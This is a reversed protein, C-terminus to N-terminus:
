YQMLEVHLKALDTIEKSYSILLLGEVFKNNAITSPMKSQLYRQLMLTYRLQIKECSKHVTAEYSDPNFLVVMMMLLLMNIDLERNVEPWQKIKTTLELHKKEMSSNNAWQDYFVSKYPPYQPTRGSLSLQGLRDALDTDQQAIQIRAAEITQADISCRDERLLCAAAKLNHAIDSNQGNLFVAQEHQPLHRLEEEVAYIMKQVFLIEWSKSLSLWSTYKMQGGNFAVNLVDLGADFNYHLLNTVWSTKCVKFKEQISELTKQEEITFHMYLDPIRTQASKLYRDRPNNPTNISREKDKPTKPGLKNFKNFRRNREEDSLVWTTRM